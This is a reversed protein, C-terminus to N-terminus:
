SARAASQAMTARSVYAALVYMIVEGAVKVSPYSPILM